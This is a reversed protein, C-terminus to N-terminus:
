KGGFRAALANLDNRGLRKLTSEQPTQRALRSLNVSQGKRLQISMTDGKIRAPQSTLSRPGGPRVGRLANRRQYLQM